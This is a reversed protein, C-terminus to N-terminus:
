TIAHLLGMFLAAYQLAGDSEDTGFKALDGDEQVKNLRDLLMNVHILNDVNDLDSFHKHCEKFYKAMFPHLGDDLAKARYHEVAKQYTPDEKIQEATRM